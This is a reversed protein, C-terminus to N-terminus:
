DLEKSGEGLSQPQFLDDGCVQSGSHVVSVSALFKKPAAAM